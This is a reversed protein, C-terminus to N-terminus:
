GTWVRPPHRITGQACLIVRKGSGLREQARERGLACRSEVKEVQGCERLMDFLEKRSCNVPVGSIAVSRMPDFGDPVDHDRANGLSGLLYNPYFAGALM